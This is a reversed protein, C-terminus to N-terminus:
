LKYYDFLEEIYYPNGHTTYSSSESKSTIYHQGVTGWFEGIGGDVDSSRLYVEAYSGGASSEKYDTYKGISGEAKNGTAYVTVGTFGNGGSTRSTTGKAYINSTSLGLQLEGYYHIGDYNGDTALAANASFIAATMISAAIMGSIIKKIKM